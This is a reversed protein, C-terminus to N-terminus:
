KHQLFHWRFYPATKENWYICHNGKISFYNRIKPTEPKAEIDIIKGDEVAIYGREYLEDCGFSCMPM